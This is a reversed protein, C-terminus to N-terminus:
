RRELKGVFGGCPELTVILVEGGALEREGPEIAAPRGRVDALQTLRMRPWGAFSTALSVLKLNPTGNALAVYWTEGKRRAMAALEGIRSGELVRTEDWDTPLERVFPVAAALRPEELLRRPHEAMVLLPSTVLYAVALQHAWTTEGPRTFGIPTYDAHGVACRTFPLAANHSAPLNQNEGGPVHARVAANTGKGAQRKLYTETIRNLEMGRVGERTVENPYTRAEGSPKQCGHFNVLLLRKAAERLVREDFAVLDASEGNMFDVKVGAAGAGGVRDLFERLVAYDNTSAKLEGAHKWVFARVGNTRGYDCVDRLTEWKNTWAEWGEDLTTFEFKLRAACDIVRKEEAVGMYNTDGQWWSWVSRGGSAWGEGFLAPDPPPALAAVLDNNVLADLTPALLVVRWPTVARGAVAFGDKETFGGWLSGDPRAELRLGSYNFLAAETVVAYGAGGPLEAVLPMTQVPGQPSVRGLDSLPASIWEGAYTKLKWESRREAFWARSAAPLRWCATEANVRHPAMDPALLRWAFGGNAVAIQVGCSPGREPTAAVLVVVADCRGEAHVGRAPFREHVERVNLVKLASVRDWACGDLRWGIPSPAVVEGGRFSVAYTVRGTADLALTAGVCGDPSTFRSEVAGAAVARAVGLAVAGAACRRVWRPAGVGHGM